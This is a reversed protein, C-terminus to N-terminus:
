TTIGIDTQTGYKKRGLLTIGVANDSSLKPDGFEVTIHKALHKIIYERMYNSSSVGGVFLFDNISYKQSLQETMKIIARSLTNFMSITVHEASHIGVLKQGQTEIGSLNIYGDKVKIPSFLLLDKKITKTALKDMEEGCPFDFGLSVGLRDIVQGFSIDRTGGIITVKEDKVHLGETTGGSFHYCIYEDKGAFRSYHKVAEIHGEQHSFQYMPVNLSSALIKAASLGSHFVPMYSDEVPRPKISVSVCKINTRIDDDQLIERVIDPLNVVHQFLATSQRLGREGKKVDLLQQCNKIINGEKDIVAISTKYNSTDIGIYYENNM